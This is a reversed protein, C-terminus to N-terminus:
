FKTEDEKRLKPKKIPRDGLCTKFVANVSPNEETIPPQNYINAASDPGGVGRLTIRNIKDAFFESIVRDLSTKGPILGFYFFYPTQTRSFKIGKLIGTASDDIYDIGPVGGALTDSGNPFNIFKNTQGPAMGYFYDVSTINGSNNKIPLGCRDGPIFPDGDNYLSELYDGDPTVYFVENGDSKDKVTIESYIHYANDFQDSGPRMYNVELANNKYSSFRKCFYSRIDEDHVFRLFCARTQIGLDNSDIIENGIQSQLAGGATNMCLANSCSFEAYAHVNVKSNKKEKISKIEVEYYNEGNNINENPLDGTLGKESTRYKLNDESINYTTQPLENMIFPAEDIDCFVSSGLETIDTPFFLNAKYEVVNFKTDGVLMRSAYYIEGDKWVVVGHKIDEKNYDDNQCGTSPGDCLWTCAAVADNGCKPGCWDNRPCRSASLREVDGEDLGAEDDSTEEATELDYEGTSFTPVFGSTDMENRNNNQINCDLTDKFYETREHFFVSNCKNKQHSVGGLNEWTDMGNADETKVYKPKGFKNAVRRENVKLDISSYNGIYSSLDSYDDFTIQCFNNNQDLGDFVIEEAGLDKAETETFYTDTVEDYGGHWNTIFRFTRRLRATCINDDITKEIDFASGTNKIKLRYRQYWKQGQFDDCYYDCFKDKKIQGRRKKSKKVKYKRKILPFYLSGSVWDNYFDFTLMNLAGALGELKCSVWDKIVATQVGGCTWCGFPFIYTQNCVFAAFITPILIIPAIADFSSDEDCDLRILPVKGCCQTCCKCNDCNVYFRAPGKKTDDSYPDSGLQGCGCKRPDCFGYTANGADTDNRPIRNDKPIKCWVAKENGKKRYTGPNLGCRFSSEANGTSPRCSKLRKGENVGTDPDKHDTWEYRVKGNGQSDNKYCACTKTPTWDDDCCAFKHPAGPCLSRCSKCFINTFICKTIIKLGLCLSVSDSVYILCKGDECNGAKCKTECKGGREKYAVYGPRAHGSGYQFYGRSFHQHLCGNRVTGYKVLSCQTHVDTSKRAAQYFADTESCRSQVDKYRDVNTGCLGRVYYSSPPLGGPLNCTYYETGGASIYQPGWLGSGTNNFYWLGCAGPNNPTSSSNGSCNVTGNTVPATCNKRCGNMFDSVDWTPYTGLHVRNKPLPDWSCFYSSCNNRRYGFKFDKIKECTDTCIEFWCPIKIQCLATIIGNIQNIISNLLGVIFAFVSLLFCILTYLGAGRGTDLRNTPFKNVGYGNDIDKIGTHKSTNDFKVSQYRGIYQKVTYVKKWRFTYFDKLYNYENSLDYQYPTGVTFTSLQQNLKFDLTEKLESKTYTNFNYNHTMNPVLFTARQRLRKDSNKPDMTIKFRLDTETAVGTDPDNSPVLAGFEDTVVRRLTMPILLSWNGNDDIENSSLEFSEITGNQTRGIAHISGGGTIVENMRGMRKRPRCNKNISDKEDDSFVSGFFISTPTLKVSDISIDQRNIGIIRGTSLDDCWYPEITLTINGSVVQPLSDIDEATKFKFRGDFDEKKYGQTILEYPRPSLFGIDSMDMDYHLTRNGVPIGFLIFDGASNTTTTYKYYKEHIKFATKNDLIERKTPFTGIPTHDLNQQVNPFLNYRNGNNNKEDPYPTQFPYIETISEDDADRSDVPIFISVKVNPVGYGSNISIRGAVVGYDACFSQYVDKQDIKLSLIELFDFNQELKVKIYKGSDDGPTTRIRISKSM